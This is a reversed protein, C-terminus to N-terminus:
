VDSGRLRGFRENMVPPPRRRAAAPRTPRRQTPSEASACRSPPPTSVTDAAAAPPPHHPLLLLLRPLPLLLHLPSVAGTVTALSNRVLKQRGGGGGGRVLVLLQYRIQVPAAQLPNRRACRSSIPLVVIWYEKPVPVVAVLGGLGHAETVRGASSGTWEFKVVGNSGSGTEDM